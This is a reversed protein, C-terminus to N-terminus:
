EGVDCYDDAEIGLDRLAAARWYSPAAYTLLEKIMQQPSKTVEGTEMDIATDSIRQAVLEALKEHDWKKRPAGTKTELNFQQTQFPGRDWDTNLLIETAEKQLMDIYKKAENIIYGLHILRLTREPDDTARELHVAEDLRDLSEQLDEQLGM